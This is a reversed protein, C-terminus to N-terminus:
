LSQLKGIINLIENVGGLTDFSNEFKCNFNLIEGKFNRRSGPVIEYKEKVFLEVLCQKNSVMVTDLIDDLGQFLKFNGIKSIKFPEFSHFHSILQKALSKFSNKLESM